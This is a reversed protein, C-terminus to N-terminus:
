AAVDLALGPLAELAGGVDLLDPRHLREHDLDLCSHRMAAQATRPAVGNRSLLNALLPAESDVM